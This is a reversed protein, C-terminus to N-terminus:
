RIFHSVVVAVITGVVAYVSPHIHRKRKTVKPEPISGLQGALQSIYDDYDYVTGDPTEVEHRMTNQEYVRFVAERDSRSLEVRKTEVM